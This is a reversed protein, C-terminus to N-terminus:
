RGPPGPFFANTRRVYDRYAPRRKKLDKELLTVGSVRLLLFSMLLPGPLSWWGGAGLALLYIGWWVCFDGFYNPHRTYRWLGRDMVEAARSPDAKFRALQLDGVSEFFFGLAWLAVGLGDLVGLAAGGDVAALLPLSVIWALVGQLGFVTALSKVPFRPGQRRRMAQYRRDEPEGWGRWVLHASLRLAWLGVLVLVLTRRAGGPAPTAHAYVAAALAFLLPWVPDVISVDRKALSVLWTVLLALAIAGLGALWVLLM